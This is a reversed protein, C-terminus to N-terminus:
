CAFWPIGQAPAPLCFTRDQHTPSLWANLVCPMTDGPDSPISPGAPPHAQLPVGHSAGEDSPVGTLVHLLPSSCTCAAPCSLRSTLCARWLVCRACLDSFVVGGGGSARRWQWSLGRRSRRAAGACPPSDGRRGRGPVRGPVCGPSWCVAPIRPDPLRPRSATAPPPRADCPLLFPSLAPFLCVTWSIVPPAPCRQGNRFVIGPGLCSHCSRIQNSSDISSATARVHLQTRPHTL